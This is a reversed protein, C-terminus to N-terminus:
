QREKQLLKTVQPIKIGQKTLNNHLDYLQTTLGSIKALQDKLQLNDEKFVEFEKRLKENEKQLETKTTGVLMDDQKINDTMGLFESYYYIKDAKKWGFRYMMGQQTPYRPLWYCASIHRLDNITLNSYLEGALSKKDGFLSKARRKLYENIKSLPRQFILDDEKFDNDEIQEKVLKSSLMLKMKRGVTKSIEDRVKLSNFNDTFDSVRINSM